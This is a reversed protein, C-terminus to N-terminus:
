PLGGLYDIPSVSFQLRFEICEALFTTVACLLLVLFYPSRPSWLPSSALFPRLIRIRLKEM